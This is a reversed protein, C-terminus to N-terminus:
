CSMTVLSLFNQVPMKKNEGKCMILARVPALSSVKTTDVYKLPVQVISGVEIDGGAKSANAKMKRGGKKLAICANDRMKKRCPSENLRAEEEAGVQKHKKATAVAGHVHALLPHRYNM